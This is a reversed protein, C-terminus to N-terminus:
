LDDDISSAPEFQYRLEEIGHDKEWQRREAVRARLEEVSYGEWRDSYGSKWAAHDFDSM